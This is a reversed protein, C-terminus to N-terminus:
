KIRRGYATLEATSYPRGTKPNKQHKIIRVIGMYELEKCQCIVTRYGCNVKIDLQRLSTQKEKLMAIIQKKIELPTRKM